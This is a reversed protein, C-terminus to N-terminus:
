ERWPRGDVFKNYWYSLARKRGGLFYWRFWFSFINTISLAINKFTNSKSPRVKAIHSHYHLELQAIRLGVARAKIVCEAPIFSSYSELVIGDLFFRRPFFQVFQFDKIPSLFLAKILYYNVRSKLLNFWSKTRLIKQKYAVVVDNEELLPIVKELDDLDFHGDMDNWFVYDKTVYRRATRAAHGGGMNKEHHFVRLEPFEEALRDAMAGTKDTSGDNVLIIEFDDAFKKLQVVWRRIQSEIIAEENYAFTILSFSKKKVLM